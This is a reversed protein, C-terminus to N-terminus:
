KTLIDPSHGNRVAVIEAMVALAVEEPTQGGLNIGVPGHLKALNTESIGAALLRHRRQEQTVRSGLAGIYFAESPLVITLAPDDLKPDHTLMVVASLCSLNIQKLAEDPWAHILRDVHPFRAATGFVGRPDIVITRYGMVKAIQTLAIAIHVGGVTIIELAPAIADLFVELPEAASLTFRQSKGTCLVDQAAALVARDLDPAISGITQDGHTVILQRGLLDIAGSIVTVVVSSRDAHILPRLAAYWERDLRQVFVDISGGCALGVDWATENSVGFHLLRPQGTKIVDLGTDYVAGEVCGGSVSGCVQGSATLAMKAGVRRPSSGWTQVVTALAVSQENALWGEIDALTTDM